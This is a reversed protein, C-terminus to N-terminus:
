GVVALWDLILSAAFGAIFFQFIEIWFAAASFSKPGMLCSRSASLVVVCLCPFLEVNLLLPAGDVM